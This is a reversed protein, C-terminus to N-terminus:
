ECPGPPSGPSPVFPGCDEFPLEDDDDRGAILIILLALAGGIGLAAALRKRRSFDQPAAPRTGGASSVSEGANVTRAVGGARLEVRGAQVSVVTEGGEFRVTFLAARGADSEASADATVIRAPAGPPASVLVGGASLGGTIGGASFDLRLASEPSLELRRLKGLSLLARGSPGTTLKSGSFFTRGTTAPADDLEVAGDTTLQGAPEVAAPAASAYTGATALNLVAAAIFVRAAQRTIPTLIKRM